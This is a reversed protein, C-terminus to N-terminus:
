GTKVYVAIAEKAKQLTKKSSSAEVRIWLCPGYMSNYEVESIHPIALLISALTIAGARCSKRLSERNAREIAVADLRLLRRMQVASMEFAYVKEALTIKVTALGTSRCRAHLPWRLNRKCDTRDRARTRYGSEVGQCHIYAHRAHWGQVANQRCHGVHSTTRRSISAATPQM